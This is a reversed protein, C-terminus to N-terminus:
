AAHGALSPTDPHYGSILVFGQGAMFRAEEGVFGLTAPTMVRWLGLAQGLAFLQFAAGQDGIAAGVEIYSPGGALREPNPYERLLEILEARCAVAKAKDVGIVMFEVDVKEVDQAESAPPMAYVEAVGGPLEDAGAQLVAVLDPSRELVEGKRLQCTTENLIAYLKETNM